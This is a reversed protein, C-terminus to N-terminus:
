GSPIQTVYAEVVLILNDNKVEMDTLRIAMKDWQFYPLKLLAKLKPMLAVIIDVSIGEGQTFNISELIFTQAQTNPRGIVTFSLLRTQDIEKLLVTISFGIKGDSPLLVEIDQLELSVIKGDVDLDFSQVKSRVFDSTLARNMDAATLVIRAVANVPENLEIQGFIASLPNINVNDTQLKIEQVRIHEQIVLGQGALSVQDVQGQVVKLLNTRVDVDIQEAEDLQNSLTIEAAQSILHELGQKESMFKWERLRESNSLKSRLSQLTYRCYSIHM